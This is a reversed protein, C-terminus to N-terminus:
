HALDNQRSNNECLFFFLFFIEKGNEALSLENVSGVVVFM